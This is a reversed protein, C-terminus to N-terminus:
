RISRHYNSWVHSGPFSGSGIFNGLQQADAGLGLMMAKNAGLMLDSEAITGASAAKLSKLIEDANGGMSVALQQFSERLQKAQAGMKALEVTSRLIMQAGYVGMIPGAVTKMMNAASSMSNSMTATQKTAATTAKGAGKLGALYQNMGKVFNKNDWIAHIGVDNPNPMM